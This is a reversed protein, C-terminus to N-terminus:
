PVSFIYIGDGTPCANLGNWRGTKLHVNTDEGATAFVVGTNSLVHSFEPDFVARFGPPWFIPLDYGSDAHGVIGTPASSLIIRGGIEM